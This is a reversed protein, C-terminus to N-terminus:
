GSCWLPKGSLRYQFGGSPKSNSAVISSVVAMSQLRTSGAVRWIGMLLKLKAAKQHLPSM